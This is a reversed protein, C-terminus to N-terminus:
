YVVTVTGKMSFPQEGECQMEAFYVYSGIPAPVGKFYGNWGASRDDIAFNKNEFVMEGWRNFIKMSKIMGVGRGKVYFVDNKGDRNPTFTNPIYVFGQSCQLKIQKTDSAACGYQNKVTVVYNIKSKPKTVPAACNTCNLYDPPSWNWQTVDNSGIAQLQQETNALVVVDPGASVSPLPRVTVNINATDSFCGYIDYGVVTYRANASLIASPNSITTNSLGTTYNIWRYSSAGNARLQINSGSCVSTDAPATIKFPKAVTIDVSDKNTCGFQNTVTVVYM